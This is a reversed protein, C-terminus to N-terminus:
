KLVNVAAAGVGYNSVVQSWDLFGRMRAGKTVNAPVVITDGPYMRLSDFGATFLRSHADKGVVSGDARVVFMHHGDAFRTPGGSDHLYDGVRLDSAYLFAAQNYVTGVVSITSPVSPVFLRDGNELALQPLDELGKSDPELDLVVRGSVPNQRLREVLARQNAMAIQVGGAQEATAARTTISSGSQDIERELEDLFESYRKQQERRTSERTFQAGYLYANPTFGGARTVLDRLTEGPHVSYIGAMNVEGELRVYKTQQARPTAIDAISFVTIVDGPQLELDAASDHDIVVNGLNFPVLYTTLDQARLREIVAYKWDIDPAAIQISNKSLFTRSQTLDEPSVAAALSKDAKDERSVERFNPSNNDAQGDERLRNREHWYNRTLLSEKNPIVESIKMGAHWPLRVPDAVNGRLSVMPEFRPVVPLLRIIDGGQLVTRFGREDLQINDSQLAAHQDVRVLAARQIATISSLGGADNLLERLCTDQKIEYIAPNEVSGWIAVRPGANPIFIVDGPQLSVDQSKDGHLLLDYLDFTAITRGGRNLQINRLSGRSSPGGSAFLANVLTSLSSITYTGPRRAQGVIFVEISRLRGINVSIEFNKYVRGIAAQLTDQLKGFQRGAISIRGIQPLFIEGARDVTLHQNYNIQGWVRLDIEDGPGMTYTSAVPVHDVPAFTSPVRDFLSAGYIALFKGTSAEVFRQFETPPERVQFSRETRPQTSDQPASRVNVPPQMTSRPNIRPAPPLQELDYGNEMSSAASCEPLEFANPDTCYEPTLSSPKQPRVSQELEQGQQQQQERQQLQQQQQLQDQQQQQQQEQQQEDQGFLSASFLAM